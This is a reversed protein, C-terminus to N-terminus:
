PLDISSKLIFGSKVPLAVSHSNGFVGEVETESPLLDLLDNVFAKERDSSIDRLIDERTVMQSITQYVMPAMKAADGYTFMISKEPNESKM